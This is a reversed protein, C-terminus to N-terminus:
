QAQQITCNKDSKKLTYRKCKGLPDTTCTMKDNNYRSTINTGPLEKRYINYTGPDCAVGGTESYPINKCNPTEIDNANCPEVPRPEPIAGTIEAALGGMHQPGSWVVAGLLVAFPLLRVAVLKVM